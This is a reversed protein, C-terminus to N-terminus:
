CTRFGRTSFYVLSVTHSSFFTCVACVSSPVPWSTERAANASGPVNGSDRLFEVDHKLRQRKRSNGGRPKTRRLEDGSVDRGSSVTEICGDKLTAPRKPVGVADRVVRNGRTDRGARHARTHYLGRRQPSHLDVRTGDPHLRLTSYDQVTSRRKSTPTPRSM